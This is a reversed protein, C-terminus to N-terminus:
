GPLSKWRNGYQHAYGRLSGRARRDTPDVFSAAIIERNDISVSPRLHPRFEFVHTPKRGTGPAVALLEDPDARIGVEERLERSAAAAPTENRKVRGGPLGYGPRYSHRVILIKGDHWVAVAAGVHRPRWYRHVAKILRYAVVLALRAVRDPIM